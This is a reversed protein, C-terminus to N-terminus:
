SAGYKMNREQYNKIPKKIIILRGIASIMSTIIISIAAGILGYLPILIFNLLLTFLIVVLLLPVELKYTRTVVTAYGIFEAPYRFITAAMLLTLLVYYNAYEKGFLILLISEGFFLTIVTSIVGLVMGAVILRLLLKNFTAKREKDYYNALRACFSQGIAGIFTNGAVMLYACATFYGLIENNLYYTIFYRTINTNLSYLLSIIGLPIILVYLLRLQKTKNFIVNLIVNINFDGKLKPLDYIVVVGAWAIGISLSAFALSETYYYIGWFSFVSLIGKLMNSLGVQKLKESRQLHGYIFDSLLQINKSFLYAVIVYLISKEINTILCILVTTLSAFICNIFVIAAYNNLDSEEHITAVMNRIQMTFFMFVPGTIAIALGFEGVEKPSGLRALIIIILFQAVMFFASGLFVTFVKFVMSNKNFM